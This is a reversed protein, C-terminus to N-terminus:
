RLASQVARVFAALAPTPRARGERTLADFLSARMGRAIELQVGAGSSGRNCLNAPELGQLRGEPHPGANVGAASLAAAIRAGLARDRGGVFVGDGGGHEGHITVVVRAGTVMALCMPEDFRTSTIHLDVNGKPKLGEFTYFSHAPSAIADAIESTGAEISGGHPAVIAVQSEARRVMIRFDIGPREHKALTAFDPYKDMTAHPSPPTGPARATVAGGAASDPMAM